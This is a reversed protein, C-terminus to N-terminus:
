KLNYRQKTQIYVFTPFTHTHVSVLKSSYKGGGGCGGGGVGGLFFPSFSSSFFIFVPFKFCRLRCMKQKSSYILVWSTRRFNIYWHRLVVVLTFLHRLTLADTDLYWLVHSYIVSLWHMLTKIGCCTHIFHRLALSTSSAWVLCLKHPSVFMNRMFNFMHMRLCLQM